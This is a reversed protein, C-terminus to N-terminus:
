EEADSLWFSHMGVDGGYKRELMEWMEAPSGCGGLMERAEGMPELESGKGWTSEGKEMGRVLPGM